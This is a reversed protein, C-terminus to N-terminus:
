TISPFSAKRYWTCVELKAYLSLIEGWKKVHEEGTEDPLEPSEPFNQGKFDKALLPLVNKVPNLTRYGELIGKVVTLQPTKADINTM